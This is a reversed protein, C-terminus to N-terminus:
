HKYPSVFYLTEAVTSSFNLQLVAHGTTGSGAFSDLVIDNHNSVVQGVLQEILSRPKPFIFGASGLIQQVEETGENTNGCDIFSSFGTFENEM